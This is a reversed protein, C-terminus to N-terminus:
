DQKEISSSDLTIMYDIEHPKSMATTDATVAIGEDFGPVPILFTSNGEENVPRYEVGDVLMYDYNPSSFIVELTLEDGEVTLVAPSAISAKGSGGQLTGEVLYTGDELALDAATTYAKESLIADAPLSSALVVLTRDYWQEKKKSFASCKIGADLASVPITFTHVGDEEEFPILDEQAAEAAEEPTGPYVFLYGTGGMKMKATMKGGSVALVASDVSFMSSSSVVEVDYVGDAVEEGTIPVMWDEVVDEVATMDSSSAIQSTDLAMDETATETISEACAATLLSLCVAAAAFVAAAPKWFRRNSM